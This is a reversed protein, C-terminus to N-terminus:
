HISCQTKIQTKIDEFKTNTSSSFKINTYLMASDSFLIILIQLEKQKAYLINTIMTEKCINYRSNNSM